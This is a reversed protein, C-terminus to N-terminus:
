PLCRAVTRRRRCSETPARCERSPNSPGIIPAGENGRVPRPPKDDGAARGSGAITAAAAFAAAGSLFERRQLESM